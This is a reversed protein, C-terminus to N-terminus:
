YSYPKSKVIEDVEKMAEEYLHKAEEDALNFDMTIWMGSSAIKIEQISERDSKQAVIFSVTEKNVFVNGSKTKFEVFAKKM